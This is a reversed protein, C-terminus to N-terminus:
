FTLLVRENFSFLFLPPSESCEGISAFRDRLAASATRIALPRLHTKKKDRSTPRSTNFSLASGEALTYAWQRIGRSNSFYWPYAEIPLLSQGVLQTCPILKKSVKQLHLFRRILKTVLFLKSHARRKCFAHIHVRLIVDYIAFFEQQLSLLEVQVEGCRLFEDVYEKLTGIRVLIEIRKRVKHWVGHVIAEFTLFNSKLIRSYLNERKSGKSRAIILM